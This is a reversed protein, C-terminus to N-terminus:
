RRRSAFIGSFTLAIGWGFRLIASAYHNDIVDKIALLIGIGGITVLAWRFRAARSLKMVPQIRCLFGWSEVCLFQTLSWLV